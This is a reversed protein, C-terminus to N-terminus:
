MLLEGYAEVEGEYRSKLFSHTVDCVSRGDETCDITRICIHFFCQLVGKTTRAPVFRVFIHHSIDEFSTM